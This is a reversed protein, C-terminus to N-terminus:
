HGVAKEGAAERAAMLPWEYFDPIGGAKPKLKRTMAEKLCGIVFDLNDKLDIIEEKSIQMLEAYRSEWAKLDKTLSDIQEAATPYLKKHDAVAGQRVTTAAKVAVKPRAKQWTYITARSVKYKRSAESISMGGKIARLCEDAIVAKSM